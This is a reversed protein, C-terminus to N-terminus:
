SINWNEKKSKKLIDMSGHCVTIIYITDGNLKYVVRYNHFILERIEEQKFEPVERGLKPYDMLKDVGLIIKEVFDVAYFPSDQSIYEAINELDKQSSVSWYIKEM